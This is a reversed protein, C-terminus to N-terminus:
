GDFGINAFWFGIPQVGGPHDNDNYLANSVRLKDDLRRRELSRHNPSRNENECKIAALRKRRSEMREEAEKELVTAPLIGKVTYGTKHLMKPVQIKERDPETKGDQENCICFRTFYENLM